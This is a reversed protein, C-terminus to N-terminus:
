GAFVQAFLAEVSAREKAIREVAVRAREEGRLRIQHQLRRFMRYADAVQEALAADVLRLQGCLKLLAINGIDGTLEPYQVAHRLVLFQVMFEIDIMGGDDHKLDFLSTRNPHADHMRTRMNLIETRLKEPDRPLRLVQQRLSEFRHGIAEDGACFRARTLAQHEWVWASSLQYKEFSAVSSCILGSAGDPRLAIDVDFLIGAPTHSTM